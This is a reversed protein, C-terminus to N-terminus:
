SFLDLPISQRIQPWIVFVRDDSLQRCVMINEQPTLNRLFPAFDIDIEYSKGNKLTLILKTRSIIVDEPQMAFDYDFGESRAMERILSDDTLSHDLKRLSQSDAISLLRLTNGIHMPDDNPDEWSFSLIDDNFSYLAM